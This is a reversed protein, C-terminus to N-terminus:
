GFSANLLGGLVEGVRLAIEETAFSLIGALPVIAVFNVIFVALPNVKAFNLGIGVPAMILLWNITLWRPFLVTKIQQGVPIKRKMLEHHKRKKTEEDEEETEYDDSSRKEGNVDTSESEEPVQRLGTGTKKRQQMISDGEGGNLTSDNSVNSGDYYGKNLGDVPTSNTTSTPSTNVHAPPPFSNEHASTDICGTSHLQRPEPRPKQAEEDDIPVQRTSSHSQKRAFINLMDWKSSEDSKWSAHRARSKISDLDM